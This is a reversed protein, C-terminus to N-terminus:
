YISSPNGYDETMSKFMAEAISPLVKTTAANDLYVQQM